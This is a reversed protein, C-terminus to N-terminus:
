GVRSHTEHTQAAAEEAAAAVAAYIRTYGTCRCLNGALGERIEALDPHPHDALLATAAMLMGPTCIGCQTGGHAAFARRLPSEAPVGEVTQVRCGDLQGMPVLCSNVLVGDVLVACAGCEGEGCGEKAGTLGLTERLYDLLRTDPRCAASHQADNVTLRLHM